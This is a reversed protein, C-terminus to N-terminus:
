PSELPVSERARTGRRHAAGAVLVGVIALAAIMVVITADTVSPDPVVALVGLAVLAIGVAVGRAHVLLFGVVSTPTEAPAAGRGGAFRAALAVGLGLAAGVLLAARLGHVLADFFASAAPVSVSTTGIWDLLEQRGVRWAVLAVGTALLAGLGLRALVRRRDPAVVIGALALLITVVPLPVALDDLTRVLTRVPSVLPGDVLVIEPDVSRIRDGSLGPLGSAEVRDAVQEVLPGLGIVLRDDHVGAGVM